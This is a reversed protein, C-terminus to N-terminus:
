QRLKKKREFKTYLDCVLKKGKSKPNTNTNTAEAHQNVDKNVLLNEVAKQQQTYM